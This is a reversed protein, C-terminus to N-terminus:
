QTLTVYHRLLTPKEVQQVLFDAVDQRAVSGVRMGAQLEPLARYQHTAPKNTLIGPRVIEWQPVHQTLLQEFRTTDDYEKKLFLRFLLKM